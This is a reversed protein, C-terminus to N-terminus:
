NDDITVVTATTGTLLVRRIVHPPIFGIPVSPFVVADADDNKAPIYSLSGAVTVIIAKAYPSLDTTDSPAVVRGFDGFFSRGQTRYAFPDQVRDYPM